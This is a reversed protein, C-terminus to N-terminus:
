GNRYSAKTKGITLILPTVILAVLTASICTVIVNGIQRFEIGNFYKVLLVLMAIGFLISWYILSVKEDEIKSSPLCYICGVIFLGGLLTSGHQLIKLIPLQRGFLDISGQLPQLNQFFYGNEHTFSDWLNHSAAGILISIVVIFWRSRFQSNWNVKSWRLFRSKLFVPLNNILSDRVINHFIFTLLLGLPLDFWFLGVVTHSYESKIRMRIFYEFDPTLSGIVLGTLSVWKKPLYSLPLVIAPHSFTFPM